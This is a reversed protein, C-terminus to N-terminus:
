LALHNNIYQIGKRSCIKKDLLCTHVTVTTLFMLSYYLKLLYVLFKNRGSPNCTENFKFQKVAIKDSYDYLTNLKFFNGQSDDRTISTIRKKLRAIKECM